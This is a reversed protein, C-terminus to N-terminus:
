QYGWLWFLEFYLTLLGCTAKDTPAGNSRIISKINHYIKSIVMIQTKFNISYTHTTSVDTILDCKM